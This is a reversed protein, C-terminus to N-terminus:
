LEFYLLFAYINILPFLIEQYTLKRYAAISPVTFIFDLNNGFIKIANIHRTKASANIDQELREGLSSYSPGIPPM